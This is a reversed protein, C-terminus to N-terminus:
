YPEQEWTTVVGLRELSQEIFTRVDKTYGGFLHIRPKRGPLYPTFLLVKLGDTWDIIHKIEIIYEDTVLDVLGAPTEVEAQGGEREQLLQQIQRETDFTTLVAM